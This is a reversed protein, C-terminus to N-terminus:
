VAHHSDRRGRICGHLRGSSHAHEVIDAAKTVGYLMAAYEPTHDNEVLVVVADVDTYEAFFQAAITVNQVRPTHRVLIDEAACGLTKLSETAAALNRHAFTLQQDVIVIGIKM